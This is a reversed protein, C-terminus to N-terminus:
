PYLNPKSETPWRKFALIWLAVLNLFPIIFFVSWLAAHGTRKLIKGFPVVIIALWGLVLFIFLALYGPYDILSRIDWSTGGTAEQLTALM